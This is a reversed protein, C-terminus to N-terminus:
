SAPMQDGNVVEEEKKTKLMSGYPESSTSHAKDRARLGQGLLEVQVLYQVLRDLCSGLVEVLEIGPKYIFAWNAM